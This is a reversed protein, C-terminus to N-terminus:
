LAKNSCIVVEVMSIRVEEMERVVEEMDNSMVEEGLSIGGEERHRYIGVEVMERVVVGMGNSKVEVELSTGGEERHRCTEV